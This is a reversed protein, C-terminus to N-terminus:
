KKEYKIVGKVDGDDVDIILFKVGKKGLPFKYDDEFKQPTIMKYLMDGSNTTLENYLECKGNFLDILLLSLSKNNKAMVWVYEHKEISYDYKYLNYM